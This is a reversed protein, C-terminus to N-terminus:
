LVKAAAHRGYNSVHFKIKEVLVSVKAYKDEFKAKDAGYKNIYVWYETEQALKRVEECHYESSAVNVGQYYDEINNKIHCIYSEFKNWAEKLM